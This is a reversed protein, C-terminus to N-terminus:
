RAQVNNNRNYKRLSNWEEFIIKKFTIPRYNAKASVSSSRSFTWDVFSIVFTNLILIDTDVSIIFLLLKIFVNIREM